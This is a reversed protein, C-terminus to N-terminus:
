APYIHFVHSKGIAAINLFKWKFYFDLFVLMKPTYRSNLMAYIYMDSTEFETGFTVM